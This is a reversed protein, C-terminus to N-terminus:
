YRGIDNRATAKLAGREAPSCPHHIDPVQHTKIAANCDNRPGGASNAPLGRLRQSRRARVDYQSIEIFFRGLGRSRFYTHAAKM